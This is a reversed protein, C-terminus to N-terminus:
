FKWKERKFLEIIKICTIGYHDSVDPIKPRGGDSPKEQAVVICDAPFLTQALRNKQAIALAIVFPDAEPTQKTADVLGPFARLIDVVLRQQELDVPKFMKTHRRAWRSLEDDWKEVEKRVERPAILRGRRVLTGLESWLAPFVDQPYLWKIDILASTDICYIVDGEARM